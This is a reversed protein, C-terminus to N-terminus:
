KRLQILLWQRHSSHFAEKFFFLVREMKKHCAKTNDKAYERLVPGPVAVASGQLRIKATEMGNLFVQEQEETLKHRNSVSGFQRNRKHRGSMDVSNQNVPIVRVATSGANTNSAEASMNQDAAPTNQDAASMNQDTSHPVVNSTPPAVATTFPPPAAAM